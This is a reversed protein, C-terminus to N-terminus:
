LQYFKICNSLLRCDLYFVTHHCRRGFGRPGFRLFYAM